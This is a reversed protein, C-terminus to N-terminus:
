HARRTAPFSASCLEIQDTRIEIMLNVINEELDVGSAVSEYSLFNFSTSRRACSWAAL